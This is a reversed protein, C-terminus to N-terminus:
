GQVLPALLHLQQGAILGAEPEEGLPPLLQEALALALLALAQKRGAHLEGSVQM